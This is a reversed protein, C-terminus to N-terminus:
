GASRATPWARCTKPPLPRNASGTSRGFALLRRVALSEAPKRGVTKGWAEAFRSKEPRGRKLAGETGVHFHRVRRLAAQRRRSKKLFPFGLASAALWPSVRAVPHIQFATLEQFAKLM